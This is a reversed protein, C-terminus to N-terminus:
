SLVLLLIRVELICEDASVKNVLRMAPTPTWRVGHQFVHCRQAHTLGDEKVGPVYMMGCTHCHVPKGFDRQGLDLYLQEFNRKKKKPATKQVPQSPRVGFYHCISLQTDKKEKIICSTM